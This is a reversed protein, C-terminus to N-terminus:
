GGGRFCRPLSSGSSQIPPNAAGCPADFQPLCYDCIAVDWTQRALASELAAASEVRQSDTNYGGANLHRRILLADDECDEILLVRLPTVM